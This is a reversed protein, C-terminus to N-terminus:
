QKVVKIWMKSIFFLSGLPLHVLLLIKESCIKSDTSGDTKNKTEIYFLSIRKVNVIIFLMCCYQFIEENVNWQFIVISVNFLRYGDFEPHPSKIRIYM